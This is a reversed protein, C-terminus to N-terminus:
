GSTQASRHPHPCAPILSPPPFFPVRGHLSRLSGQRREERWSWDSGPTLTTQSIRLWVTYVAQSRFEAGAQERTGVHERTGHLAKISQEARIHEEHTKLNARQKRYFEEKLEGRPIWRRQKEKEPEGLHFWCRFWRSCGARECKCLHGTNMLRHKGKGWRLAM